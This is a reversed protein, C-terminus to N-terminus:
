ITALYADRPGENMHAPMFPRSVSSTAVVEFNVRPNLEKNSEFM